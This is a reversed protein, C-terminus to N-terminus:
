HVHCKSWTVPCHSRKSRPGPLRQHARATSTVGPLLREGRSSRSRVEAKRPASSAVHRLLFITVLGYKHCQNATWNTIGLILLRGRKCQTQTSHILCDFMLISGSQASHDSFDNM